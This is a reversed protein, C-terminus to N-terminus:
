RRLLLPLVSRSCGAFLTATFESLFVLLRFMVAMKASKVDTWVAICAIQFQFIFFTGVENRSGLLLLFRCFSLM